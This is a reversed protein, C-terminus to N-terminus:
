IFIYLYINKKYNYIYSHLICQDKIDLKLFSILKNKGQNKMQFFKSRVYKKFAGQGKRACLKIVM